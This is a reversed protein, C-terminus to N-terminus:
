KPDFTKSPGRGDVNKVSGTAIKQSLRKFRNKNTQKMTKINQPLLLLWLLLLLLLLNEKSGKLFGILFEKDLGGIIVDLIVM